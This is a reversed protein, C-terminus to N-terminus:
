RAIRLGPPVNGIMKRRQEEEAKAITDRAAQHVALLGKRLVEAVQEPQPDPQLEVGALRIEQVNVQAVGRPMRVHVMASATLFTTKDFSLWHQVKLGTTQCVFTGLLIAPRVTPQEPTAPQENPAIM